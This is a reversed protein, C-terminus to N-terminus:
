QVSEVSFATKMNERMTRIWQGDQRDTSMRNNDVNFDLKTPSAYLQNLDLTLTLQRPTGRVEFDSLPVTVTSLAPDTGLHYFLPKTEGAGNRFNGEHKFFIYGTNWTWIMGHIPDLDGLQDGSHNHMSDVGLYFRAAKYKGSPVSTFSISMTSTDSCDILKHLQSVVETGDERILTFHSVYYKLLDISYADGSANTFKMTGGGLNGTSVTESGVATRFSIRVPGDQSVPQADDKSCSSIGPILCLLAYSLFQKM